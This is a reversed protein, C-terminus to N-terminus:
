TLGHKKRWSQVNRIEMRCLSDRAGHLQMLCSRMDGHGNKRVLIEAAESSHMARLIRHPPTLRSPTPWRFFTFIKCLHQEHSTVSVSYIRIAFSPAFHSRMTTSRQNEASFNFVQVFIGGFSQFTVRVVCDEEVSGNRSYTFDGKGKM